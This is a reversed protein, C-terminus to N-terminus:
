SAGRPAGHVILQHIREAAESAPRGQTVGVVGTAILAQVYPAIGEPDDFGAATLIPVLPGQLPDHLASLKEASEPSLAVGRLATALVHRGDAAMEMTADIFRRLQPLGPEVGDLDEALDRRWDEFARLALAVLLDERSPFYDYVSTRAIGAREAVSTPTVAAPGGSIVLDAAAQLLARQQAVRHEAITAASIRPM